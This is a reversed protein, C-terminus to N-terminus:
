GRLTEARTEVVEYVRIGELQLTADDRNSDAMRTNREDIFSSVRLRVSEIEEDTLIRNFTWRVSQYAGYPQNPDEGEALRRHHGMGDNIWGPTPEIQQWTPGYEEHLTTTLAGEEYTVPNERAWATSPDEVFYPSSEESEYEELVGFVWNTMDREFNGSYKDTDVVIETHPVNIDM